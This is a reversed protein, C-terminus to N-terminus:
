NQQAGVLHDFLPDSIESGRGWAIALELIEVRQRSRHVRGQQTPDFCSIAARYGAARSRPPSSMLEVWEARVRAGQMSVTMLKSQPFCRLPDENISIYSLRM